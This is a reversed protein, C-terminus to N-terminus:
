NRSPVRVAKSTSPYMYYIMKLIRPCIRSLPHSAYFVMIVPTLLLLMDCVYCSCCCCCCLLLVHMAASGYCRCFLSLLLWLLVYQMGSAEGPVDISSPSGPPACPLFAYYWIRPRGVGHPPSGVCCSCCCYCYFWVAATRLLMLKAASAATSAASCRCCCCCHLVDGVGSAARPM